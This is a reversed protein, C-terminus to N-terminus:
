NDLRKEIAQIRGRAEEAAETEPFDNVVSRLYMLASEDRRQRLYFQAVELQSRAKRERLESYVKEAERSIDPVNTTRKIREFDRLAEETARQDYGTELAAEYRTYALQYRAEPVLESSPYDQLIREYASIAEPYKRMRRLCEAKNYIARDAYEGYPMNDVVSKYIEVARELSLSLELEMLKPGPKRQFMNAINFQREVIEEIRDTFPYVDVTRQYERFAAHYKGAEEYARGAYYQAEPAYESDPYHEVLSRFEEAAQDFEGKNFLEMSWDFQEEPTDRVIYKPNVLGRSRPTWIWFACATQVSLNSICFFAIAIIFLHKKM